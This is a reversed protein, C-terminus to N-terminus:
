RSPELRKLLMKLKQKKKEVNSLRTDAARASNQALQQVEETELGLRRGLLQLRQELDPRIGLQRITRGLTAFAGELDNRVTLADAISIARHAERDARKPDKKLASSEAPDIEQLVDADNPSWEFDASQFEDATLFEWKRVMKQAREHLPNLFLVMKFAKLAEKANRLELQTEGMLQFALINDPSLEAARALQELAELHKEQEIFLRALAIRGAAFDPHLRVGRNALEMAEKILGMKRYAECLTAFVRSGPNRDYEIQCREIFEVNPISM